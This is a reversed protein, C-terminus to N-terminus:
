PKNHLKPHLHLSLHDTNKRKELYHLV